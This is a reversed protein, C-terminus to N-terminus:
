KGWTEGCGVNLRYSGRALRRDATAPLSQLVVKQSELQSCDCPKHDWSAATVPSTIGTPNSKLALQSPDGVRHSCDAPTVSGTVVALKSHDCCKHGWSVATM